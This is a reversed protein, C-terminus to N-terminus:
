LTADGRAHRFQYVCRVQLLNSHELRSVAPTSGSLTPSGEFTAIGLWARREPPFTYLSSPRRRFRSLALAFPYDLGWVRKERPPSLRPPYSFGYPRLAQAPEIGAARVMNGNQDSSQRASM